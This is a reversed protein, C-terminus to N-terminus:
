PAAANEAICWLAQHTRIFLEGDSAVISSNSKEGLSNVAVLEFTPSAKFVCCDGGQTITYCNDGALMISSWNTATKGPGKLREEWVLKGTRLDFCEAIGPDNHIYIHGDRIVASGIRQKTRPHQWLRRSETIDGSGGARVALSSGNFGGMAVVIGDEFIPSPYILPNLGSCTWLEKGTRPDYAALRRPWSMLLQDNGEVNMIVPTCWSGIDTAVKATDKGASKSSPSSRVDATPPKGYGTEEEHKWKTRGTRKDVALLYTGDGPGFNLFCLEGYIAPSAAGGWIHIQRGLDARRWLEKGDLDYCFLGDSAFSAIVREGDSVPSGSCYPNTAHTPEKEKTTVGQQWLLKGDKRDFCMLTRRDGVAQTVFIKGRWVIPTSNGAEPLPARWKVNETTSWKVPFNKEASLGMGTPGRWAPWDAALMAHGCRLLVFLFLFRPIAKVPKPIAPPTVRLSRVWLHRALLGAFRGSRRAGNVAFVWANIQRNRERNSRICRHTTLSTLDRPVM